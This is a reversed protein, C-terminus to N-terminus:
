SFHSLQDLRVKTDEYVERTIKGVRLYFNLIQSLRMSARLLYGRSQLQDAGGQERDILVAVGRIEFGESELVKIAEFKSDAKTILDDIVWVGTHEKKDWEMVGDVKNGSGHSKAEIRPTVMGVKLRDAVTAAFGIGAVPIGAVLDPGKGGNHGIDALLRTYEETVMPRLDARRQVTRLDVYVPSLPAEPHSDHLKLKFDGFRIAGLDMLGNALAEQNSTLGEPHLSRLSEQTTM